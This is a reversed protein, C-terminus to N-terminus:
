RWTVTKSANVVWEVFGRYSLAEFAGLPKLGRTAADDGLIGFRIGACEARHQAFVGDGVLLVSDGEATAALCSEVSEPNSM